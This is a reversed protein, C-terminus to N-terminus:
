KLNLEYHVGTARTRFDITKFKLKILEDKVTQFPHGYTNNGVSMVADKYNADKIIYKIKGAEGGHHPVILYHNHKYNLDPLVFDNIQSYHFDAACVVALKASKYTLLLGGKNRDTNQSGNYITFSSAIKMYVELDDASRKPAASKEIVPILAAPNLRNFRSIVDKSKKNPIISRHIFYKISKITEDEAELLMHYHDVDWHSLIIIPKSQQYDKDRPSMLKRVESRKTTHSVGIDFIIEPRDNAVFENWSGQGINRVILELKNYQIDIEPLVNRGAGEINNIYKLFDSSIRSSLFFTKIDRNKFDIIYRIIASDEEVTIDNLFDKLTEKNINYYVGDKFRRTNNFNKLYIMSPANDIDTVGTNLLENFRAFHKSDIFDFLLTNDRKNYIELTILIEENNYLKEDKNSYDVM